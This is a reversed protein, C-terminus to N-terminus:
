YSFRLDLRLLSDYWGNYGLQFNGCVGLEVLGFDGGTDKVLRVGPALMFVGDGDIDVPPLLPPFATKQGDLIWFNIYELTPIIAFTDNEYWLHSVGFGYTLVQGSYAPDSGVPFLFKLESHIYTLENWQYRFLMGPELSIHGTGLGKRSAGTNFTTRFYQTIQWSNGDLLVLKTTLNMDGFGGNNGNIEPNVFRLPLDTATSFKPTAIETLFRFDQYDVSREAPPGFGGAKGWFLEARDPLGLNHASDFRFRYNNLPATTDIEFPAHVLRERGIGPEGMSSGPGRILRRLFGAREMPDDYFNPLWSEETPSEEFLPPPTFVPEAGPPLSANPQPLPLEEAQGSVQSIDGWGATKGIRDGKDTNAGQVNPQLVLKGNSDLQPVPLGVITPRPPNNGEVVVPPPSAAPPAVPSQAVISISSWFMSALALLPIGGRLGIIRLLIHM